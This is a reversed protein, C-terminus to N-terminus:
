DSLWFEDSRQEQPMPGFIFWDHVKEMTGEETFQYWLCGQIGRHDNPTWTYRVGSGVSDFDRITEWAEKMAEGNLNEYGVQDVARGMAEAVAVFSFFGYLYTMGRSTVEPHWRANLERVLVVGENDLDWWQPTRTYFPIGAALEGVADWVNSTAILMGAYTIPHFNQREFEKLFAIASPGTIGLYVYDPDFQKMQLVQTTVEVLVLPSRTQIYDWGKAETEVRVCKSWVRGLNGFSVTDFAVRPSGANGRQKWDEEMLEVVSMYIVRSHPFTAFYYSPETPYIQEMTVGASTLIPIRDEQSSNTIMPVLPAPGSSIMVANESKLREWGSIALAAEMKFDILTFKLQHGRVGGKEKNIHRVCDKMGSVWDQSSGALPGSLDELMGFVIEGKPEPTPAVEKKCAMPLILMSVLVPLVIVCAMRKIVIM